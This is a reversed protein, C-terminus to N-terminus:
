EAPPISRVWAVLADLDEKSMKSYYFERQMPVAFRRGDRAVGETLARRIEDDSWAGIGRTRHSTINKVTVKGWPGSMEHGGRGKFDWSDGKPSRSHCEMCHAITALYFGRKVPDTPVDAGISKEGGPISLSPAASKYEPPQVENRLAPVSMVYTAVADLDSPTLIKYFPYPMQHALPVGNPRVGEVLARTVDEKSWTGIGTDKSQTINSGRVRYWPEDWIQSGGAFRRAMNLGGPGRPTHCGDCAMVGNVLYAGREPATQGLALTTAALSVAVFGTSRLM